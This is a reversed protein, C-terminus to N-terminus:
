DLYGNMYRRNLILKGDTNFVYTYDDGKNQRYSKGIYSEQIEVIDEQFDAWNSVQEKTVYGLEILRDIIEQAGKEAEALNAFTGLWDSELELDRNINLVIYVKNM